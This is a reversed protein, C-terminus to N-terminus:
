PSCSYVYAIGSGTGMPLPSDGFPAGVVANHGNLVVSAGFGDQYLNTGLTTVRMWTGSLPVFFYSASTPGIFSPSAGGVLIAQGSLAVSSGFTDMNATPSPIPPSASWTTGSRTFVYAAPSAAIVATNGDLAISVTFHPDNTDALGSPVLKAQQTWTTGSRLFVYGVHGAQGGTDLPEALVLATDGSIAVRMGFDNSPTYDNPVLSAQQAWTAGTRVYISVSNTNGLVATTGDLALSFGYDGTAYALRTEPFWANGTRAFAYVVPTGNPAARVLAIDGSTVVQSGFQQGVVGDTPGLSAQLAWTGGSGAFVYAAGTSASVGPAGIVITGGVFSVSSGFTNPAVGGDPAVPAPDTIVATGACGACSAAGGDGDAVCPSGVPCATATWGYCGSSQLVCNDIGGDGCRSAGSACVSTCSASDGCPADNCPSASGDSTDGLRADVSSDEPLSVETSGEPLTSLESGGDSRPASDVAGTADVSPTPGDGPCNSDWRCSGDVSDCGYTGGAVFALPALALLARPPRKIVMM